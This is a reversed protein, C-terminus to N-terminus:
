KGFVKEYISKRSNELDVQAREADIEAKKAEADAKKADAEAREVDADEKKVEADTKKSESLMPFSTKSVNLQSELSAPESESKTGWMAAFLPAIHGNMSWKCELSSNCPNCPADLFEFGKIEDPYDEPKIYRTGSTPCTIGDIGDKSWLKGQYEDTFISPLGAQLGYENTLNLQHTPITNSTFKTISERKSESLDKYWSTNKVNEMYDKVIKLQPFTGNKIIYEGLYKNVTRMFYDVFQNDKTNNINDIYTQMNKKQNENTENKLITSYLALATKKAMDYDMKNSENVPELYKYDMNQNMMNMNMNMNQNMNLEFGEITNLFLLLLVILFFLLLLM